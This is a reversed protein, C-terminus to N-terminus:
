TAGKPSRGAELAMCDTTGKDGRRAQLFSVAISRIRQRLIRNWHIQTEPENGGSTNTASDKVRKEQDFMEGATTESRETGLAGFRYDFYNDHLFLLLGIWIYTLLGAVYIYYNKTLFKSPATYEVLRVATPTMLIAMSIAITLLIALVIITHLAVLIVAAVYISRDRQAPSVGLPM